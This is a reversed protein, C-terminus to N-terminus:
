AFLRARKANWIGCSYDIVYDLQQPSEPWPDGLCAFTRKLWGFVDEIRGRTERVHENYQQQEKTLLKIEKGTKMQQKTPKPPEKFPTHFTVKGKLHHKGWEFHQDGIVTAGELRTAFWEKFLELWNGDHIKPSYGGWKRRIVGHGDLIFMYRRGRKNLKYSWEDSKRGVGKMHQLPFDSSDIWLNVGKVLKM